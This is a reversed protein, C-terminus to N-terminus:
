ILNQPTQVKTHAHQFRQAIPFTLTLSNLLFILFIRLNEFHTGLPYNKIKLTHSHLLPSGYPQPFYCHCHYCPCQHLSHYFYLRFKCDQPINKLKSERRCRAEGVYFILTPPSLLHLSFHSFSLSLSFYSLSLSSPSSITPSSGFGINKYIQLM